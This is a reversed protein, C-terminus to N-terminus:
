KEGHLYITKPHLNALVQINNSTWAPYGTPTYNVITLKITAEENLKSLIDKLEKVTM